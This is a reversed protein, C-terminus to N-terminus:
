REMDTGDKMRAHEIILEAFGKAMGATRVVGNVVFYPILKLKGKVLCFGLWYLMVIPVWVGVHWPGWKRIYQVYVKGLFFRYRIFGKFDERHNHYVSATSIGFKYDDKGLRLALDMDDVDRMRGSVDFGYKIITERRFLCAALGLYDRPSRRNNGYQHHQYNAWEWYNPRKSIPLLQRASIAIFDASQLEALMTALARDTLIIDSDVYAIYEQTAQEAGLQRAYAKARGDDSYVRETYRKAIAVTRDISVGDVVIIEVPKNRQISDLCEEITSEANRAIIIVSIPLSEM